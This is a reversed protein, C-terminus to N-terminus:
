KILNGYRTVRYVLPVARSPLIGERYIGSCYIYIHMYRNIMTRGTFLQNDRTAVYLDKGSWYIHMYIRAPEDPRPFFFVRADTRTFFSALTLRTRKAALKLQM